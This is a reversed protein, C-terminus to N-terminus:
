VAKEVKSEGYGGRLAKSVISIVLYESTNFVHRRSEHLADDSM